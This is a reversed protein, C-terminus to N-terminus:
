AAVHRVPCPWRKMMQRCDRPLALPRGRGFAEEVERGVGSEIQLEERLPRVDAPFDFVVHAVDLLVARM